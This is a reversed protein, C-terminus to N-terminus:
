LLPRGGRGKDQKRYDKVAKERKLRSIQKTYEDLKEQHQIDAVESESPEQMKALQRGILAGGVLPTGIAVAPLWGGMAKNAAHLGGTAGGVTLLDKLHNFDFWNGQGSKILALQHEAQSLMEDGSLGMEACKELFAFKFQERPSLQNVIDKISHTM